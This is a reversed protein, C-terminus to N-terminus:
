GRTAARQWSKERAAEGAAVEFHIEEVARAVSPWDFRRATAEAELGISALARKDRLGAATAKVWEDLPAVFGDVGHRILESAGARNSCFVSLGSAMAELVVMGFADYTTPFVLADAAAYFRELRQVHALLHVNPADWRYRQSSTVVVFEVDPAAQTLEKLHTHAKTLDGVYLAVTTEDSLGIERRVASRHLARNASNFRSADVGHPIVSVAGRVGYRERLDRAVKESVAIIRGEYRAYFRSETAAMLRLSARNRASISRLSDLYSAVCIHATVVNPRGGCYGQAHRIDFGELADSLARMGLPFTQVSSLASARWARVPHFSWRADAPRECHNAFVTVEHRASLEDALRKTYLSHGGHEHLDHVVLAIKM